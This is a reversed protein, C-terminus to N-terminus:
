QNVKPNIAESALRTQYFIGVGSQWAYFTCDCRSWSDSRGSTVLALSGLDSSAARPRATPARAERAHQINRGADVVSAHVRFSAGGFDFVFGFNELRDIMRYSQEEDLKMDSNFKLLEVSHHPQNNLYWDMLYLVANQEDENLTADM